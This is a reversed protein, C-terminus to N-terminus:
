SVIHLETEVVAFLLTTTQKIRSGHRLDELSQFSFVYNKHTGSVSCCHM